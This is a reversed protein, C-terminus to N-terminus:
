ADREAYCGAYKLFLMHAMPGAPRHPPVSRRSPARHHGVAGARAVGAAMAALRCTVAGALGLRGRELKNHLSAGHHNWLRPHGAPWGLGPSGAMPQLVGRHHSATIVAGLEEVLPALRSSQWVLKKLRTLEALPM